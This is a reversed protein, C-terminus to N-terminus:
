AKNQRALIAKIEAWQQVTEPRLEAFSKTRGVFRPVPPKPVVPLECRCRKRTGHMRHMSVFQLSEDLVSMSVELWPVLLRSRDDITKHSYYAEVGAVVVGDLLLAVDWIVSKDRHEIKVDDYEPFSFDVIFSGLCYASSFDSHRAKVSLTKNKSLIHRLYYILRTHNSKGPCSDESAGLVHCWHVTVKSSNAAKKYVLDPCYLCKYYVGPIADALAVQEGTLTSEAYDLM